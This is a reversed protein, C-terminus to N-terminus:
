FIINIVAGAILTVLLAGTAIARKKLAADLGSPIIECAPFVHDYFSPHGAIGGIIVASTASTYYVAASNKIFFGLILMLSLALTGSFIGVIAARVQKKRVCSFPPVGKDIEASMRAYAQNAWGTDRSSVELKVAQNMNKWDFKLSFEEDSFRLLGNIGLTISCVNRPDIEKQIEEYPGTASDQGDYVLTCRAKFRSNIDELEMREIAIRESSEKDELSEIIAKRTAILSEKREDALQDFLRSIRSLEEISGSWAIWTRERHTKRSVSSM